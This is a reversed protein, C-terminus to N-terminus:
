ILVGKRLHSRTTKEHTDSKSRREDEELVQSTKVLIQYAEILRERMGKKTIFEQKIAGIKRKM